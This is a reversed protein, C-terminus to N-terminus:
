RISRCDEYESCLSKFLPFAAVMKFHFERLEEIECNTEFIFWEGIPLKFKHM